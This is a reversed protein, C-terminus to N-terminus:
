AKMTYQQYAKNLADELDEPNDDGEWLGHRGLSRLLFRRGLDDWRTPASEAAALYEEVEETPDTVVLVVEQYTGFDHSLNRISLHCGSPEPGLHRLLFHRYVRCEQNNFIRFSDWNFQSTHEDTPTSGLEFLKCSM